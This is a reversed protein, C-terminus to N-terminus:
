IAPHENTEPVYDTIEDKVKQQVEKRTVLSNEAILGQYDDTIPFQTQSKVETSKEVQNADENRLTEDWISGTIKDKRNPHYIFLDITKICFQWSSANTCAVYKPRGSIKESSWGSKLKDLDYVFM